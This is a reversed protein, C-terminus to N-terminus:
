AAMALRNQGNAVAFNNALSAYANKFKADIFRGSVDSGDRIFVRDKLTRRDQNAGSRPNNKLNSDLNQHLRRTRGGPEGWRNCLANIMMTSKILLNM